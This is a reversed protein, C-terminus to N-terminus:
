NNTESDDEEIIIVDSSREPIQHVAADTSGSASGAPNTNFNVDSASYCGREDIMRNLKDQMLALAIITTVGTFYNAIVLCLYVLGLNSSSSDGKAAYYQDIKEGQRFAWYIGYIGCTVIDLLIVMGGSPENPNDTIKNTDEQITYIWYLAYIGCTIITLLICMGISKKELVM